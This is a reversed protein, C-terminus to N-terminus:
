IDVVVVVGVIAVVDDIAAVIDTAVVGNVAAAAVDDVIAVMTGIGNADGFAIVLSSSPIRGLGYLERGKEGM